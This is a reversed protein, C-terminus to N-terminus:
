TPISAVHKIIADMVPESIHRLLRDAELACVDSPLALVSGLFREIQKLKRIVEQAQRTGEETLTAGQRPVYRVLGATALEQVRATASPEKVGLRTAIDSTHATGDPSQRQSYFVACLVQDQTLVTM